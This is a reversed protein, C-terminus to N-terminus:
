EKRAKLQISAGFVDAFMRGRDRLADREISIDGAEAPVTIVYSDDEFSLDFNKIRQQSGEDLACAVRLIASLKSVTARAAKPLSMYNVHTPKPGSRRHYRVVNAVIDKGEKRLGFIESASVLYASHKHYGSQSIYAGIGHLVASVELLMRERSGMGHDVTLADFLKIALSAICSCHAKDYGYREALHRASNLVQKAVDTRKYGSFMQSLEYILGDRMSVMPVVITETKVSAFFYSYILLAPYFTEASPYTLDYENVIEEPTMKGVDSIVKDFAKRELVVYSAQTQEHLRRAVRRMDGGLAIFTDLKSFNYEKDSYAVIENVHRRLIRKLVARDVKSYDLNEPLRMSGFAINRTVEVQGQNLVMLETSGSGVEVILCNQTSLDIGDKLSQEVAILDLRNEEAGELLEVDIGTRVYVQDIFNERNTAERVASTAVAQIRSVGYTQIHKKYNKLIEIAERMAASSIRKTVFVDKGFHVAKQLNELFRIEGKSGIEAVVMRIASTGVDIVAVTNKNDVSQAM